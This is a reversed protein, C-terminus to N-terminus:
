PNGLYDSKGIEIGNHRLIEYAHHCSFFEATCPRAPIIPRRGGKPSIESNFAYAAVRSKTGHRLDALLVAKAREIGEIAVHGITEEIFLSQRSLGGLHARKDISRSGIKM